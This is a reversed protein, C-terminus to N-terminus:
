LRVLFLLAPSSVGTEWSPVAVSLGGFSWVIPAALM